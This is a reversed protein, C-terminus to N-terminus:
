TLDNHVAESSSRKKHKSALDDENFQKSNL